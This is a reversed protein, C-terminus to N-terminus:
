ESSVSGDVAAIMAMLTYAVSEVVSEYLSSKPNNRPKTVSPQYKEHM